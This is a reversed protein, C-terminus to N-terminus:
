WQVVSIVQEKFNNNSKSFGSGVSDSGTILTIAM